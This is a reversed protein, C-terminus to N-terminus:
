SSGAEAPMYEARELVFRGSDSTEALKAVHNTETLITTCALELARRSSAVVVTPLSPLLLRRGDESENLRKRIAGRLGVTTSGGSQQAFLALILLRRDAGGSTILQDSVLQALRTCEERDLAAVVTQLSSLQVDLPGSKSEDHRAVAAVFGDLLEGSPITRSRGGFGSRADLSKLALEEGPGGGLVSEILVDLPTSAILRARMAEIREPQLYWVLFGAMVGLVVGFGLRVPRVRVRENRVADPRSLNAGCEPCSATEAAVSRLDHGCKRCSPMWDRRGGWIAQAIVIGAILALMMGSYGIATWLADPIVLYNM